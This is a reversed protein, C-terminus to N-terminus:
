QFTLRWRSQACAGTPAGSMFRPGDVGPWPKVGRGPRGAPAASGSSGVASSSSTREAREYADTREPAEHTELRERGADVAARLAPPAGCAEGARPAAAESAESAEEVLPEGKRSTEGEDPVSSSPTCM